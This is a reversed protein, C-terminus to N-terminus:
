IKIMEAYIIENAPIGVLAKKGVIKDKEVWKFGDGPSLMHLDNESITEGAAIP